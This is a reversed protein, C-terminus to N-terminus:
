ELWTYLHGECEVAVGNTWKLVGAKYYHVNCHRGLDISALCPGTQVGRDCAFHSSGVSAVVVEAIRGGDMVEM